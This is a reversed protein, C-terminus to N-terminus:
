ASGGLPPETGDQSEYLSALTSAAENVKARVTGPTELVAEGLYRIVEQAMWLEDLYPVRARVLGDSQPECELGKEELSIRWRPQFVVTAWHAEDAAPFVTGTRRRALDLGPRPAFTRGTSRAESIRDLRFTRQASAKRCFAEVYWGDASHFLLYPEILREALENRSATFYKIEVLEGERIALNLASVVDTDPRVVEDVLVDARSDDRGILTHVKDRISGLTESGQVSLTDGVLDLALLLAKAMMPSLRTPRSFVDAMVERIVHVGEDSAEATLAYTGGGFNVLNLLSLDQEVEKRTLGLDAELSQWTILEPGSERLLYALLSLTRALHEPAIPESRSKATVGDRASESVVPQEPPITDPDGEHARSVMLLAEAFSERLAPPELVRSCRGLTTLWSLLPFEDAYPVSFTTCGEADSLWSVHPELRKVWWALDEAVSITATGVVPGILWPPRARYHGPDYDDPVTFDRPRETPFRVPGKMRGVRFTRLAERLHDRGVLYWHGQILFLSYPDVTRDKYDAEPDPYPFSVTKGRTVADELRSLQRGAIRADEDPAFAIPLQELDELVPDQRGRLMSILALRLPRAYAFRGDLAALTLSLARQEAETFEVTPMRFDDPRLYYLQSAEADPSETSTLIGIEIGVKALDARDAHFRRAFTEDTMDAYGEVSEQIERATYTRPSSLLFSLLSLQRILKDEDRSM